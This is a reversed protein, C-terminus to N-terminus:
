APICAGASLIKGNVTNDRIMCGEVPETKIELKGDITCNQITIYKDGTSTTKGDVVSSFMYLRNGNTCDVKGNVKSNGAIVITSNNDIDVKGDIISGGTIVVTGANATVKGNVTAGLILFAANATAEVKADRVGTIVTGSSLKATATVIGNADVTFEVLDGVALSLTTSYEIESGSNGADTPSSRPTPKTPDGPTYKSAPSPIAVILTGGNNGGSGSGIGKIVGTAM